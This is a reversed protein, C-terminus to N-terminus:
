IESNCKSCMGRLKQWEFKERELALREREIKLRERQLELKEREIALLAQTDSMTKQLKQKKEQPPQPGAEIVVVDETYDELQITQLDEVQLGVEYGGSIGEYNVKSVLGLIRSEAPTLPPVSSSGAGTQKQDKAVLVAKKKTQSTLTSVKKKIAEVDRSVGAVASVTDAIKEWERDKAEKTINSTFKGFLIDKSKEVCTVLAELEDTKFNLARRKAEM